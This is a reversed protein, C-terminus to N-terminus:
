PTTGQEKRFVTVSLCSVEARRGLRKVEGALDELHEPMLEVGPRTWLGKLQPMPESSVILLFRNDGWDSDQYRLWDKAKDGPLWHPWPGAPLANDTHWESPVLPVVDHPSAHILAYCGRRDALVPSLALRFRIDIRTRWARLPPGGAAGVDLRAAEDIERLNFGPLRHEPILDLWGRDPSEDLLEQWRGAVEDKAKLAAFSIGLTKAMFRICREDIPEGNFARYVTSRSCPLRDPDTAREEQALLEIARVLAPITSDAPLKFGGKLVVRSPDWAVLAAHAVALDLRHRM